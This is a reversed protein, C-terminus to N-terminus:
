KRKRLFAMAATAALLWSAPEPVAMIIGEGSTGFLLRVDSVTLGALSVNGTFTLVLSDDALPFKNPNGPGGGGQPYTSNSVVGYDAGAGTPNPFTGGFGTAAAGVTGAPLPTSGPQDTWNNTWDAPGAVSTTKDTWHAGAALVEAKTLTLPTISPVFRVGTLVDGNSGLPASTNTLTVLLNMGSITFEATGSVSNSSEPNTGSASYITGAVAPATAALVTSLWVLTFIHFRQGPLARLTRIMPVVRQDLVTM